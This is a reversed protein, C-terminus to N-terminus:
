ERGESLIAFFLNFNRKRMLRVCVCVCLCRQRVTIFKSMRKTVCPFFAVCSNLYLQSFLCQSTSAEQLLLLAALYQSQMVLDRFGSICLFVLLCQRVAIALSFTLRNSSSRPVIYRRGAQSMRAPRYLLVKTAHGARQIECLRLKAERSSSVWRGTYTYIKAIHAKLILFLFFFFM